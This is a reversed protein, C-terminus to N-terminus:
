TCLLHHKGKLHYIHTEGGGWNAPNWSHSSYNERQSVCKDDGRRLQMNNVVHNVAAVKGRAGGLSRTHIQEMKAQTHRRGDFLIRSM